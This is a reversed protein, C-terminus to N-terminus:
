KAPKGDTEQKAQFWRELESVAILRRHGVKFWRIEGASMLKYLTSRSIAVSEAAARVSLALRAPRTESQIM